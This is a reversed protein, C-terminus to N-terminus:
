WAIVDIWLMVIIVNVINWFELCVTRSMASLHLLLAILSDLINFNCCFEHDCVEKLVLGYELLCHKLLGRVGHIYFPKFTLTQRKM